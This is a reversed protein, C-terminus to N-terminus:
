VINFQEKQNMHFNVGLEAALLNSQNKSLKRKLIVLTMSYKSIQHFESLRRIYHPNSM